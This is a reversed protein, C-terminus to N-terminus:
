RDHISPHHPEPAGDAHEPVPERRSLQVLRWPPKILGIVPALAWDIV